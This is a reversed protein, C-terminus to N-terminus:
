TGEALAKKRNIRQRRDTLEQLAERHAQGEDVVELSVGVFKGYGHDLLAQTAVGRAADSKAHRLLDVLTELEGETHDRTMERVDGIERPRGGPNGSIVRYFTAMPTLVGCDQAPGDV